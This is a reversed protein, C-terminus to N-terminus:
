RAGTGAGAAGLAGAGAAGADGATAAGADGAAGTPGATDGGDVDGWLAAVDTDM